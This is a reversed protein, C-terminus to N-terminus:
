SSAGSPRDSFALSLLREIESKQNDSVSAGSLEVAMAADGPARPASAPILETIVKLDLAKMLGYVHHLLVRQRGAEINAVSERSVGIKKAVQAQTLGLHKRRVMVAQGLTAYVAQEDMMPRKLPAVCSIDIECVFTQSVFM